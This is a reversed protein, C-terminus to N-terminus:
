REPWYKGIVITAFYGEDSVLAYLDENVCRLLERLDEHFYIESRNPIFLGDTGLAIGCCLPPMFYHPSAVSIHVITSLKM